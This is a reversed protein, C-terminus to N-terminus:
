VFGPLHFSAFLLYLYVFMIPSPKVDNNNRTARRLDATHADTETKDGPEPEIRNEKSEKKKIQEGYRNCNWKSANMVNTRNVMKRAKSKTDIPADIKHTHHGDAARQVAGDSRQYPADSRTRICVPISDFVFLSLLLFLFMYFVLSEIFFFLVFIYEIKIARRNLPQSNGRERFSANM